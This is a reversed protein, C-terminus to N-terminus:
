SPQISARCDVSQKVDLRDCVPRGVYNWWAVVRALTQLREADSAATMIDHQRIVKAQDFVQLAEAALHWGDLTRMREKLAGDEVQDLLADLPDVRRAAESAAQIDALTCHKMVRALLETQGGALHARLDLTQRELETAERALDRLWARERQISEDVGPLCDLWSMFVNDAPM